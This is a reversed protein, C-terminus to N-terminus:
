RPRFKSSRMPAKNARVEMRKYARLTQEMDDDDRLRLLTLQKGLVRDALAEIFHKVDERGM